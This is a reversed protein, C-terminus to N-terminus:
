FEAGSAGSGRGDGCAVVYGQDALYATWDVVCKDLVMQSGPGGYQVMVVPYKKTQDFDSPKVIYANLQDGKGNNFVVFEKKLQEYSSLNNILKENSEVIRLTKGKNDKVSVNM